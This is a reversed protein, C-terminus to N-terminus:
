FAENQFRVLALRKCNCTICIWVHYLVAPLNEVINNQTTNHKKINHHSAGQTSQFKSMAATCLVLIKNGFRKEIKM